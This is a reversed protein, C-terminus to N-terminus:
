LTEDLISQLDCKVQLLTQMRIELREIERLDNSNRALDECRDVENDLETMYELIKPRMDPKFM